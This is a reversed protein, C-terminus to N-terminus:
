RGRRKSRAEQRARERRQEAAEEQLCILWREVKQAPEEQLTRLTYGPLKQLLLYEM